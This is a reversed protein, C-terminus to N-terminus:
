PTASPPPAAKGAPEPSAALPMVPPQAAPAAAAPTEAKVSVKGKGAPRGALATAPKIVILPAIASAPKGSETPSASAAVPKVNRQVEPACAAPQQQLGECLADRRSRWQRAADAEGTAMALRNLLRFDALLGTEEGYRRDLEYAAQLQKEAPRWQERLLAIEGLTRHATAQETPQEDALDLAAKGRLEAADLQQEALLLRAELNALYARWTCDKQCGERAQAFLRRSTLGDQRSLAMQGALAAARGKGEAPFPTAADDLLPWLAAQALLPQDTRWRARALGIRADAQRSWDDLRQAAQLADQWYRVGEEPRARQDRGLARRIALDFHDQQPLRPPEKSACGALLALCSLTAAVVNRVIM